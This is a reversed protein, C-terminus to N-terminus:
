TVIFIFGHFSTDGTWIAITIVVAAASRTMMINDAIVPFMMGAATLDWGRCHLVQRGREHGVDIIISRGISIPIVVQGQSAHIIVIAHIIWLILARPIPAPDNVPGHTFTLALDSPRPLLDFM